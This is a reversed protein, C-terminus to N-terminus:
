AVRSEAFRTARDLVRDVFHCYELQAVVDSKLPDGSKRLLVELRSRPSLIGEFWPGEVRAGALWSAVLGVVRGDYEVLETHLESLEESTGTDPPFPTAQLVALAERLTLEDELALKDNAVVALTFTYRLSGDNPDPYRAIYDRSATWSRRCYDETPEGDARDVYWNSGGTAGPGRVVDWVDGGLIVLSSGELADIAELAPARELGMEYSGWEALSRGHQKWIDTLRQLAATM